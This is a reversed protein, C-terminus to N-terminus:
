AARRLAIRDDAPATGATCPEERPDAARLEALLGDFM